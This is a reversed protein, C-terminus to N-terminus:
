EGQTASSPTFFAQRQHYYGIAFRGQDEMALHPPFDYIGDMIEGLLKELNVVLGRNELKAIHHNKLKLLQPLVTVPTASAAGYYRERITANIGPNAAEQARELVAFLRGLRYGINTNNRDLSMDVEQSHHRNKRVLVAKILAARPYNVHHEARIRGVAATLLTWPYPTGALIAKMVDGALNPLINERKGQIATSQLLRSLSLFEADRSSRVIRLDDFHQRINGALDAATSHHWFRVAIRAANPALGLVYFRTQADSVYGTGTEPARYLSRVASINRAPDDADTEFFDLFDGELPHEKEAWFITSADGVQLRQRSGRRLLHNLASTYKFAAKQGVPANFGQAKGYSNFADLNFSVINAGSTQAGWVGKIPAHLREITDEEGTILCRQRASDAAATKGAASRVAQRQCVLELDNVLRFSVNGKSKRLEEWHPHQYIPQFNANELFTLVTQVGEDADPQPFAQRIREIFSDHQKIARELDDEREAYGLVYGIHDWLLYATQWSNKGSRKISQPVIFSRATKRKGEGTRTDELDVFEGGKDLVM